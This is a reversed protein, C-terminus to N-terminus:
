GISRYVEITRHAVLSWPFQNIYAKAARGMEPLPSSLAQTLAISLGDEHDPDYVIAAQPPMEGMCGLKPALVPRCYSAALIAAGSTLSDRYPLVVLDCASLYTILREDPIFTFDTIVRPDRDTQGALSEALHTTVPKGAVVLRIDQGPFTSFLDLLRDIGKYARIQGFFLLVRAEPPIKLILRASQQSVAPPYWDAYHGHPVVYLRDSSIGFATSVLPKAASCHVIVGNVLRVLLRSALREWVAFRKEHNIINHVTWVFRVGFIRLVILQVFFQVTRLITHLPHAAMFFDHHWQLHFIDPRGQKLVHQWLFFKGPQTAGVELGQTTLSGTLLAMYPNDQNNSTFVVKM